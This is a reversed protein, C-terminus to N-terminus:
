NCNPFSGEETKLVEFKNLKVCNLERATPSAFSAYGVAAIPPNLVARSDPDRRSWCAGFRRM